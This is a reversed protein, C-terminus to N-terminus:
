ANKPRRKFEARVRWVRRVNEIPVWKRRLDEHVHPAIRVAAETGSRVGDIRHCRREGQKSKDVLGKAIFMTTDYEVVDDPQVEDIEVLLHWKGAIQM